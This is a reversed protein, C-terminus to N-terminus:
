AQGVIGPLLGPATMADVHAAMIYKPSDPIAANKTHIKSIKREAFAMIWNVQLLLHNKGLNRVKESKNIIHYKVFSIMALLLCANSIYQLRLM